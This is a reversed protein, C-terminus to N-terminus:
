REHGRRWDALAPNEGEDTNSDDEDTDADDVPLPSAGETLAELARINRTVQ